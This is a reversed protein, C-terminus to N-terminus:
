RLWWGTLDALVHAIASSTFNGGVIRLVGLWVGVALDLPVARWGYMPVHLLAFAVSTLILAVAMNQWEHVADFLADRLFAEESIAVISVITAWLVYNGAPRAAASSFHAIISPLCLFAGGLLGVVVSRVSIAFRTGSIIALGLLCGAFALGAVASTLIDSGGIGVRLEISAGFGLLLMMVLLV